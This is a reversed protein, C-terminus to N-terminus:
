WRAELGTTVGHLMASGWPNLQSIPPTTLIETTGLQNEPTAVGAMWFFVYGARWFLWETIAYSGNIGVEGFFAPADRVVSSVGSRGRDESEYVTSQRAGINAFVGAKAVANLRLRGGRNWLMADSGWQWGYLNNITNVQLMETGAGFDDAFSDAMNLQQGWEVWRFGQLWRFGGWGVERMNVELSKIHASSSVEAATIDDYFLGALDNMVLPQGQATARSDAAFNWAGFYNVEFSRCEDRNFIVAYRPDISIPAQLDNADLAASDPGLYLPRSPLNGQWLM